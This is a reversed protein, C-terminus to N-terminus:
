QIASLIELELEGSAACETARGDANAPYSASGGSNFSVTESNSQSRGEMNRVTLAKTVVYRTTATVKTRAPGVEEFVLNIRGELNMRRDIYFLGSPVMAEYNQQAKSGAFEYTREGRANKVYSSVRGCDVYKEPDGTYSVNILGSSKDLNNIVFFRKSLEPVSSNWVSERSKEIVKSNMKASAQVGPRVYDMKGACGVLIMMSTLFLLGRM